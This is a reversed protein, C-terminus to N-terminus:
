LQWNFGKRALAKILLDIDSECRDLAWKNFVEYRKWKIRVCVSIYFRGMTTKHPTVHQVINDQNPKMLSSYLNFFCWSCITVELSFLKRDYKSFSHSHCKCSDVTGSNFCGILALKWGLIDGWHFEGVWRFSVQIKRMNYRKHQRSSDPYLSM